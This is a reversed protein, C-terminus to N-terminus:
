KVDVIKQNGCASTGLKRDGVALFVNMHSASWFKFCVSFNCIPWSFTTQITYYVVLQDMKIGKLICKLNEQWNRQNLTIMYLWENEHTLVKM